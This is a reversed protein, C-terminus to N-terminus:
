KKLIKEKIQDWLIKKLDPNEILKSISPACIINTHNLHNKSDDSFYIVDKNQLTALLSKLEDFNESESILNFEGSAKKTSLVIANLIEFHDKDLQDISKNLLTLISGNQYLCYSNTLKKKSSPRKIYRDVGFEKLILNTKVEPTLMTLFILM